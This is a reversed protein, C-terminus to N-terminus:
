EVLKRYRERIATWADHGVGSMIYLVIVAGVTVFATDFLKDPALM